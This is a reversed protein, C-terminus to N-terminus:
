ATVIILYMGSVEEPVRERYLFEKRERNENKIKGTAVDRRDTVLISEATLHWEYVTILNVGCLNCETNRSLSGERRNNV